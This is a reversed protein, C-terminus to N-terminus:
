LLTSSCKSEMDNHDQLFHPEITIGVDKPVDEIKPRLLIGKANNSGCQIGFTVDREPQDHYTTLHDFAQSLFIYSKMVSYELFAIM